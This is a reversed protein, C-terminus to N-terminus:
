MLGAADPPGMAESCLGSDSTTWKHALHSCLGQRRPSGRWKLSPPLM